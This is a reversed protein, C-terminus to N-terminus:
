YFLAARFLCNGFLTCAAKALESAWEAAIVRAEEWQKCFAHDEVAYGSGRVHREQLQRPAPWLQQHLPAGHFLSLAAVASRPEQAELNPADGGCQEGSCCTDCGAM